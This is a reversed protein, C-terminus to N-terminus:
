LITRVNEHDMPSSKCNSHSGFFGPTVERLM